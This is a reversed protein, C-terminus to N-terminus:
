AVQTDLIIFLSNVSNYCSTVHVRFYSHVLFNFDLVKRNKVFLDQASKDMADRQGMVSKIDNKAKHEPGLQSAANM